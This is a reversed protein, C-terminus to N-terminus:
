WNVSEVAAEDARQLSPHSRQQPRGGRRSPGKASGRPEGVPKPWIGYEQGRGGSQTLPGM